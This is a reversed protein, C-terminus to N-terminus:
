LRGRALKNRKISKNVTTYLSLYIRDYLIRNEFVESM